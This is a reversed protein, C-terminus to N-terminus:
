ALGFAKDGVESKGSGVEWSGGQFQDIAYHLQGGVGTVLENAMALQTRAQEMDASNMNEIMQVEPIDGYKEQAAVLGDHGSDVWSKDARYGPMLIEVRHVGAAVATTSSLLSASVAAMAIFHRRKLM